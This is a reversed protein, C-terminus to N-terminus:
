QKYVVLLAESNDCKTIYRGKFLYQKATKSRYVGGNFIGLCWKGNEPLIDQYIFQENILNIQYTNPNFSGSINAKSKYIKGNSHHVAIEITGSVQNVSSISSINITCPLYVPYETDYKQVIFGNWNGILLPNPFVNITGVFFLIFLLRQVFYLYFIIEYSYYRFM